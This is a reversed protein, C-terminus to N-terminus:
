DLTNLFHIVLKNFSDTAEINPIHAAGPLIIKQARPLKAAIVESARLYPTDEEGVMVLAPCSIESLEDIVPPALGAVQRGFRAVAFPDQAIIAEAARQAAPLDPQRGITTTAAKRVFDKFGKKELFAATREVQAMWDKAAKPNKFGPGSGILILARVRDPHKVAFHLSAYGGFSHGALVASRGNAAWDLVCRLDDLIKEMSYAAIDDPTASKGHGRYDWLIIQFGAAVLDEVQSRWNEHTTCYACSFIVPIGDGHTEAYLLTGDNAIVTPM